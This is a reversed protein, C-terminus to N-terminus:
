DNVQKEYQETTLPIAFIRYSVSSTYLGYHTFGDFPDGLEGYKSNFDGDIESQTMFVVHFPYVILGHNKRIDTFFSDFLNLM